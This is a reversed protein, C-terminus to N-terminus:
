GACIWRRQIDGDDFTRAPTSRCRIFGANSKAVARALAGRAPRRWAEGALHLPHVRDLSLKQRRASPAALRFCRSLRHDQGGALPRASQGQHPRRRIRVSALGVRTDRRFGNAAPSGPTMAKSRKRWCAPGQPNRLLSRSQEGLPFKRPRGGRAGRTEPMISIVNTLALIPSSSTVIPSPKRSCFGTDIFLVPTAKDIQAVMHLLVASDAGFSSVLAIRGPFLDKISSRAPRRADGIGGFEADLRAAKEAVDLIAAENMAM